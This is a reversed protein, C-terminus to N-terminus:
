NPAGSSRIRTRFIPTGVVLPRYQARNGFTCEVIDHYIFIVPMQGACAVNIKARGVCFPQRFKFPASLSIKAIVMAM